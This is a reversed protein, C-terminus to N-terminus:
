TTPSLSGQSPEVAWYSLRVFRHVHFGDHKPQGSEEREKAERYPQCGVEQLFEGSQECGPALSPIREPAVRRLLLSFRSVSMDAAENMGVDEMVSKSDDVRAVQYHLQEMLNHCAM